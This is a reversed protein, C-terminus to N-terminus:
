GLPHVDGGPEEKSTHQVPHQKAELNVGHVGAGMEKERLTGRAQEQRALIVSKKKKVRKQAFLM